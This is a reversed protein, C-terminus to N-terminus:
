RGGSSLLGRHFSVRDAVGAEYVFVCALGANFKVVAAPGIVRFLLDFSVLVAFVIHAEADDVAEGFFHYKFVKSGDLALQDEGEGVPVIGPGVDFYKNIESMHSLALVEVGVAVVALTVIESNYIYFSFDASLCVHGPLRGVCHSSFVFHFFFGNFQSVVSGDGHLNSAM